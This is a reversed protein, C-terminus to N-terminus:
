PTEGPKTRRISTAAVPVLGTVARIVGDSKSLLYLEGARDVRVASRGTRCGLRPTERCTPIRAAAHTTAPRLSRPVADSVAPHRRRAQRGPQGLPDSARPDGGDDAPQWRRRRAHRQLRHVLADARSTVSYMSARSGRGRSAAISSGAPSQTAALHRTGTNFSRIPQRSPAAPSPMPSMSPFADVDASPPSVLKGDESRQGRGTGPIRLERGQPHDRRDGLHELRHCLRHPSQQLSKGPDVDWNLRHPNRLGYAWIEKRAGAISVFPNDRPIRYRGNESVTSTAVHEALDPVIRLIKGAMTDLRQGNLRVSSRQDGSGGDGCAVYLVRWDPDGRRAVPNFTLDGMPHIRSFLRVRLLERATGEFTANSINSDTWEILVGEHDVAAPRGVAANAHLRGVETRSRGHQRTRARRLPSRRSISPTSAATTRTTPISSSVSSAARSGAETALRDFLGAAHRSRQFRPIEDGAKTTRDLIYLPGNLDNVFLRRAAAPEERLFQNTGAIGRQQRATPLGTIPMAAYDAIQLALEVPASRRATTKQDRSMGATCVGVALAIAIYRMLASNYTHVAACGNRRCKLDPPNSRRNARRVESGRSRCGPFM